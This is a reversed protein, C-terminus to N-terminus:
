ANVRQEGTGCGHAQSVGFVKRIKDAGEEKDRKKIQSSLEPM